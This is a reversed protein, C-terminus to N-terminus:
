EENWQWCKFILPFSSLARTEIVNIQVSLQSLDAIHRSKHIQRINSNQKIRTCPTAKIAKLPLTSPVQILWPKWSFCFWFFPCPHTHIDTPIHINIFPHIDLSKNWPIQDQSRPFQCTCFEYFTNPHFGRLWSNISCEQPLKKKKLSFILAQKQPRESSQILDGM